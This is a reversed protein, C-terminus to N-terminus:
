QAYRNAQPLRAVLFRRGKGRALSLYLVVFKLSACDRGSAVLKQQASPMKM